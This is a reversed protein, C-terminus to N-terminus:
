MWPTSDPPPCSRRRPLLASFPEPPAFSWESLPVAYDPIRNSSQVFTYDPICNVPTLYTNEFLHNDPKIFNHELIHNAPKIFNNELIQKVPKLLNNNPIRNGPQLLTNNPIRNGPQQLTNNPIHNGLQELHNTLKPQYSCPKGRHTLGRRHGKRRRGRRRGRRRRRSLATQSPGSCCCRHCGYNHELGKSPGTSSAPRGQFVCTELVGGHNDAPEVDGHNCPLQANGHSYRPELVDGHISPPELVHGNSSPPQPVDIPNWAEELIHRTCCIPELVDEDKCPPEVVCEHNCPPDLVDGNNCPPDLLNRVNSPAEPVGGHGFSKDEVETEQAQRGRCGRFDYLLPNCSYSISPGTRTFSIMESPWLLVTKGDRSLVKCYGPSAGARVREPETGGPRGVEQRAETRGLQDLDSCGPLPVKRATSPLVPSDRSGSSVECSRQGESGDDPPAVEGPWAPLIDSKRSPGPLPPTPTPARPPLAPVQMRGLGVEEQDTFAPASPELRPGRRHPFPFSFTSSHPPQQVPGSPAPTVTTCRFMPGSGPACAAERRQEALQHIRRLARQQRREDRCSKSAVNRWFERQYLDKLRQKHAHDYSSIHNDYQQSHLYHKDCLQCHFGSMRGQPGAGEPGAGEPGAGEASEREAHQLNRTAEQNLPGRFVGKVSRLHGQRLHTSSIVIYYCAM